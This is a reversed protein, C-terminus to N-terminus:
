KEEEETEEKAKTRFHRQKFVRQHANQHDPQRTVQRHARRVGHLECIVQDFSRSSHLRVTHSCGSRSKWESSNAKREPVNNPRRIFVETCLLLFKGNM